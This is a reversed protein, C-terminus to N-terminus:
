NAFSEREKSFYSNIFNMRVLSNLYNTDLRPKQLYINTYNNDYEKILNTTYFGKYDIIFIDEFVKYQNVINVYYMDDVLYTNVEINSFDLREVLKYSKAKITDMFLSIFYGRALGNWKCDSNLNIHEIFLKGYKIDDIQSIYSFNTCSDFTSIEKQNSFREEIISPTTKPICGSLIFITALLFINKLM